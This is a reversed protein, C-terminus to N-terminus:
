TLRTILERRSRHGTKAFISTLHAQVTYPSIGLEDAIAKTSRGSLVSEVVQLERRTLGGAAALQELRRAPSATSIVVVVHPAASGTLLAAELVGVRGARTSIVSTATRGSSLVHRALGAVILPVGDSGPADLEDLWAAAGGTSGTLRGQEDFLLVGTDLRSEGLDAALAVRKLAGALIPLVAALRTADKDTFRREAAERHLCLYGWTRGESRIAARLEDGWGLPSIVDRWRASHQPQGDTAAFLPHVPVRARALSAFGVVDRGSMENAYFAAAADDPIDFAFIGSFGGTVPDATALFAPGVGVWTRLTDAAASMVMAADTTAASTALLAGPSPM